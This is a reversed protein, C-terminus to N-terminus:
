GSYMKAGGAVVPYRDIPTYGLKKHIKVYEKWTQLYDLQKKAPSNGIFLFQGECSADGCIDRDSKLTWFFTKCKSCQKRSFGLTKLTKTPYNKDPDKQAKVKYEKKIQKDSKM